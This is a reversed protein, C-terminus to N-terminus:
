NGSRSTRLGTAYRLMAHVDIQMLLGVAEGDSASVKCIDNGSARASSVILAPSPLSVMTPKTPASLTSPPAPVSVIM